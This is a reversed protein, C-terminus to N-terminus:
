PNSIKPDYGSCYLVEGPGYGGCYLVAGSGYGSCYEVGGPGYGGCCEVGGLNYGSNSFLITTTVILHRAGCFYVGLVVSCLGSRKRNNKDRIDMENGIRSLQLRGRPNWVRLTCELTYVNDVFQEVNLNVKACGAMVHACPYHLTQFRKCDCRRNRLDIGYSGPPIGPQRGIIERVQLTELCRSYIEVNMSRAKQRNAVMASRLNTLFFEWSEINEKDVISFAIPLVNKNVGQVVALLLIQTYKEYLSTGDGQVFPKCNPFAWVYPDFTKFMRHFSIKGPQLQDDPGYYPRAQLEIVTGPVYEWM